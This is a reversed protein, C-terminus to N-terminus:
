SQGTWPHPGPHWLSYRFCRYRDYQRGLWRGACISYCAPSYTRADQDDGIHTRHLAEVVERDVGRPLVGQERWIKQRKEPARIAPVIEGKQQGFQASISIPWNM